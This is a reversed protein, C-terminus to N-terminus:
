NTKAVGGLGNEDWYKRLTAFAYAIDVSSLGAETAMVEFSERWDIPPPELVTPVPHTARREFTKRIASKLESQELKTREIFLVLDVLDKVRTNPRGQWPFSYAHIKEAFQQTLPIALVTAPKIGAFDLLAECQLSEPVGTLLDGVGVDLHFKAYTKGALICECLFRVGGEPAATLERTPKAIRFQFFDDLDVQTALVFDEHMRETEISKNSGRVERAITLDLDKTTRARPRYRLETAFGGKLLWRPAPDSFLRALLREMVIKLRVADITLGRESAINRIRAELAARFATATKYRDNPM